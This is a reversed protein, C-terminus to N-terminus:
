KFALLMLGAFAIAAGIAKRKIHEEQLRWARIFLGIQVVGFYVISVLGNNTTKPQVVMAMAFSAAFGLFFVENRVFKIIDKKPLTFYTMMKKRMPTSILVVMAFFVGTRHLLLLELGNFDGLNKALKTGANYAGAFITAWVFLLYGIVASRRNNTSMVVLFSGAIVLGFAISESSTMREELFLWGLVAAVVPIMESAVSAVFETVYRYSMQFPIGGFGYLVGTGIVFWELSSDAHSLAVAAFLGSIWLRNMMFLNFDFGHSAMLKRNEVYYPVLCAGALASWFIWM